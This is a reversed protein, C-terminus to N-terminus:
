INSRHDKLLKVFESKEMLGVSSLGAKRLALKLEKVSMESPDKLKIRYSPDNPLVKMLFDEVRRLEDMSVTHGIPYSEITYDTAGVAMVKQRSKGAMAHNVVVDQTGHCHLVPISESGPTIKFQSAAPLYGSLCVIGALKQPLSFGTFISLAGGQSFGALVMRSYPLGTTEHETKLIGALRQVSDPLGKCKENSREDL